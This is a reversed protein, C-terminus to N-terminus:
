LEHKIVAKVNLEDEKMGMHIQKLKAVLLEYDIYIEQEKLETRRYQIYDELQNYLRVMAKGYLRDFVNIDYINTNIGTSIWEMWNLYQKLIQKFEDDNKVEEVIIKKRQYRLYIQHNLQIIENYHNMYLDITAQKKNREYDAYISKHFFYFECLAIIIGVCTFINTIIEIIETVNM